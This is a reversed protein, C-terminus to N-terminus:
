YSGSEILKLSEEIVNDYHLITIGQKRIDRKLRNTKENFDDRRGGIVVYEIRSSDFEYFEKPLTSNPKKYKDLVNRLSSFNKELWIRWDEVQNIGKRLTNGFNGDKITIGGYPNELEFFLFHYGQSNKGIALFDAQHNPPLMIEQFLYRDHHGYITYNKLISGILFYASENKIFNLVDRESISKDDILQKFLQLKYIHNNRNLKLDIENLYNNPFLSDINLIFPNNELLELQKMYNAQPNIKSNPNSIMKLLDPELEKYEKIIGTEEETLKSYDKDFLNM